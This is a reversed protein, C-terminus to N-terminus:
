AAASTGRGVARSAFRAAGGTPLVHNSGAVYDGFATGAARGSSCAAPARSARRSRRPTPARRAPPARARAGRRLGARRRADAGARARRRRAARRGRRRSRRPRSRTSCRPTTPSVAAVLAAPARARGPGAPRARRGAGPRRRRRRARRAADSPGAFGDIGVDGSVQRKAEQVYLNGPGVICTSARARTETGYALAAIAQAGGMRYVEDVGCLACAALIVPHTATRAPRASRRGREVGAARATVAGM